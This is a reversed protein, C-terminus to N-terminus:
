KGAKQILNFTGYGGGFGDCIYVSLKREGGTNRAIDISLTLGDDVYRIDFWEKKFIPSLIKNSYESSPDVIWSNEFLSGQHVEDTVTASLISWRRGVKDANEILISLRATENGIVVDNQSFRYSKMQICDNKESCGIMFISSLLINLVFVFKLQKM